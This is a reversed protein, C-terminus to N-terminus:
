GVVDFSEFTKMVVPWDIADETPYSFTLTAVFDDAPVLLQVSVYTLWDEPPTTVVLVAPGAAVDVEELSAVDLGLQDYQEPLLELYIPVTDFPGSPLELVNLNSVFDATANAFDFGWYLFEAGGQSLATEVVARLEDNLEVGDEGELEEIIAAMDGKTLDVGIFGDPEVFSITGKTGAVVVVGDTGSMTSSTISTSTTSEAATTPAAATTTTSMESVTEVVSTSTVVASTSSGGAEGGGGCGAAVLALGVALLVRALSTM